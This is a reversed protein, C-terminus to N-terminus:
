PGIIQMLECEFETTLGFEEGTGISKVEAVRVSDVEVAYSQTGLRLVAM